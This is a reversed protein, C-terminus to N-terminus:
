LSNLAKDLLKKLKDLKNAKNPRIKGEPPSDQSPKGKPIQLNFINYKGTINIFDIYSYRYKKKIKEVMKANGFIKHLTDIAFFQHVFSEVKIALMAIIFPILEEEIAPYNKAEPFIKLVDEISEIKLYNKLVQSYEWCDRIIAEPRGGSANAEDARIRFKVLNEKLIHIEYQLCLKIWFDFDPLQALREDYYGITEYCTKRILVSPHCLCNGKYFFQNLWEFRNKNEQNFIHCYFHNENNFDKGHEDIIQAYSFVAGIEPHTNLFAVQKELKKPSFIDDSNLIAIFEGHAEELCKREATCAGRNKKFCFLKIRPDNFKKIEEVTKDISGDDTIIIEFNQYSQNLVSLIADAIYKQHNYSPIVVSVKSM